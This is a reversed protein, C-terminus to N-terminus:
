SAPKEETRTNSSSSARSSSNLMAMGSLSNMAARVGCAIAASMSRKRSPCSAHRAGYCHQETFRGGVHRALLDYLLDGMQARRELPGTDWGIARFQFEIHRRLFGVARPEMRLTQARQYLARKPRQLALDSVPAPGHRTRDKPSGASRAGAHMHGAFSLEHEFPHRQPEELVEVGGNAFEFLLPIRMRKKRGRENRCTDKGPAVVETREGVRYGKGAM